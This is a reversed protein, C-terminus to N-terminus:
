PGLHYLVVARGLRVASDFDHGMCDPSKHKELACGIDWRSYIVAWRGKIKVGELAPEYEQYKDDRGGATERRCRGHRGFRRLALREEELSM